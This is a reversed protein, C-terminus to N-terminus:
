REESLCKRVHHADHVCITYNEWVVKARSLTSVILSEKRVKSRKDLERAPSCIQVAVRICKNLERATVLHSRELTNTLPELHVSDHGALMV